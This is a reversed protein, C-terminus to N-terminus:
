LSPFVPFPVGDDPVQLLRHRRSEVLKKARPLWDRLEPPLPALGVRRMVQNLRELLKDHDLYDYLFRADVFREIVASLRDTPKGTITNVCRQITEFSSAEMAAYYREANGRDDRIWFADLFMEILIHAVFTPRFGTDGPLRERLEIALRMNTDVFAETGHFWRDDEIHRVIGLAVLRLEIDESDLFAQAMRRRARIKRDVMSLWDPIGTSVAMLPRDLYPLAHSLFNMEGAYRTFADLELCGSPIISIKSDFPGSPERM